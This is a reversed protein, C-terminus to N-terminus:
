ANEVKLTGARIAEPNKSAIEHALALAESHPTACVRTAIGLAFAEEGSFIRGTFTLERAIDDRVLGRLLVLGAVVFILLPLIKAAALFSSM